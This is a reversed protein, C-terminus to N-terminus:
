NKESCHLHFFFIPLRHCRCFALCRMKLDLKGVHRRVIGSCFFVAKTASSKKNTSQHAAFQLSHKHVLSRMLNAATISLFCMPLCALLSCFKVLPISVNTEISLVYVTGLQDAFSLWVRTLKIIIIQTNNQIITCLCFKKNKPLFDYLLHSNLIFHNIIIQFNKDFKSNM